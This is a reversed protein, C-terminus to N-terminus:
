GKAFHELWLQAVSVANFAAHATWSAYIRRTRHYLYGLGLSLFFLPIPDPGHDMHMLAFLASAVVNPMWGLPLASRGSVAIWQPEVRLLWSQFVGRFLFEEWLPAVLVASFTAAVLFSASESTKMVDVLPHHSEWFQVVIAMLALVPAALLGATLLGAIVDTRWRDWGFGLEVGDRGHLLQLLMCSSSLALLCAGAEVWVLTTQDSPAIKTGSTLSDIDLGLASRLISGAIGMSIIFLVFVLLVERGRLPLPPPDDSVLKPPVLWGGQRAMQFAAFSAVFLGGLLFLPFGDADTTALLLPM